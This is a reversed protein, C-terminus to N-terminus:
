SQHIRSASAMVLRTQWISVSFSVVVVVVECVHGRSSPPPRGNWKCMIYEGQQDCTQLCYGDACLVCCVGHTRANKCTVRKGGDWYVCCMVQLFKSSRDFDFQRVPANSMECKCSLKIDVAGTERRFALAYIYM